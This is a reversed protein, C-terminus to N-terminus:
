SNQKKIHEIEQTLKTVQDSLSALADDRMEQHKRLMQIQKEYTQKITDIENQQRETLDEVKQSLRAEENITLGPIVKLYEALFESQNRRDYHSDMGPMKHGILRQAANYEVGARMLNTFVFKRFAHTIMTDKRGKSGTKGNPDRLAARYALDYIINDVSRVKLEQPKQATAGRTNFRHNFKDRILPVISTLEEGFRERYHLYNNIAEAAEPTCYTIYEEPENRYVTIQYIKYEPLYVIDRLKLPAVAGRRMGTSALLLILAREREDSIQLLKQIQSYDYDHDNAKKTMHGIIKRVKKWNITFIENWEFIARLTTYYTKLTRPSVNSGGNRQKSLFAMIQNQIKTVDGGNLIKSVDGDRYDLFAMYKRMCSEYTSKTAQSDLSGVFSEWTESNLRITTPNKPRGM